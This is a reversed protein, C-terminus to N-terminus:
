LSAECGAHGGWPGQGSERMQKASTCPLRPEVVGAPVGCATCVPDGSLSGAPDGSLSETPDGSLRLLEDGELIFAM